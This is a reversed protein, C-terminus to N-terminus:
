RGLARKALSTLRPGALAFGLYKVTGGTWGYQRAAWFTRIAEVRRGDRRCAEILDICREVRADHIHALLDPRGAARATAECADMAMMRHPAFARKRETISDRGLNREVLQRTSYAFRAGGAVAARWWFELDESVGLDARFNGAREFVSKRVVVVSTPGVFNSRLLSEAVGADVQWWDGDLPSVTLGQRVGATLDFGLARTNRVHDIDEYDSFLLDVGPQRDLIGVVDTLKGPRWLDDSDLFAVIAGRSRAVGERRAAGIGQNTEFRCYRIRPDAIGAVRETTGDTSGDDIVVVELDVFDQGLVSALAHHVVHARNYSPIVVSVRPTAAPRGAREVEQIAPGTSLASEQTLPGHREPPSM